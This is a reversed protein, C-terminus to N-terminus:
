VQEIKKKFESFSISNIAISPISDHIFFLEIVGKEKQKFKKISMMNILYNRSARFFNTTNLGNQLKILPEDLFYKSGSNDIVFTLRNQTYFYAVDRSNLVVNDNGKKVIIRNQASQRTDNYRVQRNFEEFFYNHFHLFKSIGATLADQFFPKKIFSLSNKINLNKLGNLEGTFIFPTALNEREIINRINEEKGTIECIILRPNNDLNKDLNELAQSIDTAEFVINFQNFKSLSERLVARDESNGDILITKIM